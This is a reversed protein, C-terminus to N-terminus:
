CAALARPLYGAPQNNFFPTQTFMPGVITWLFLALLQQTNSKGQGSLSRMELVHGGSKFWLLSLHYVTLQQVCAPLM